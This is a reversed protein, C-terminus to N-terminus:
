ISHFTYHFIAPFQRLALSVAATMIHHKPPVSLNPRECFTSVPGAADSFVAVKRDISRPVRLRVGLPSRKFMSHDHGIEEATWKGAIFIDVVPVPVTEIVGNQIQFKPHLRLWAALSDSISM